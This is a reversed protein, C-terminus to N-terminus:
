FCVTPFSENDSIDGDFDWILNDKTDHYKRGVKIRNIGFITNWGRAALSKNEEEKNLEKDKSACECM